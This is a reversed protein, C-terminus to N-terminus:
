AAKPTLWGSAAAGLKGSMPRPPPMTPNTTKGMPPPLRKQLMPRFAPIRLTMKLLMRRQLVLVLAMRRLMAMAPFAAPLVLSSSIVIKSLVPMAM